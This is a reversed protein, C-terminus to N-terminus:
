PIVEQPKRGVVRISAVKGALAKGKPGALKAALLLDIGADSGKPAPSACCSGASAQPQEVPRAYTKAVTGRIAEPRNM